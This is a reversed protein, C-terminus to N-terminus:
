MEHLHHFGMKVPFLLKIDISITFKWWPSIKRKAATLFASIQIRALYAKMLIVMNQQLQPKKKKLSKSNFNNEM